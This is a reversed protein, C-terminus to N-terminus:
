LFYKLHFASDKSLIKAEFELSSKQSKLRLKGKASKVNYERLVQLKISVKLASSMFLEITVLYFANFIQSNTNTVSQVWHKAIQPTQM